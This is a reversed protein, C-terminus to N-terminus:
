DRTTQPDETTTRAAAATRVVAATQPTTGPAPGLDSGSPQDPVSEVCAANPGPRCPSGPDTVPQGLERRAADLATVDRVTVTGALVLGFFRATADTATRVAPVTRSGGDTLRVRVAPGPSVGAIWTVSRGRDTVPVAAWTVRAGATWADFCATDPAVVADDVQLCRRAGPSLTTSGITWAVGHVTGAAVRYVPPEPTPAAPHGSPAPIPPASQGPNAAPLGGGTAAPLLLAPAVLALVAALGTGGVTFLTRRRIRRRRVRAAIRPVPDVPGTYDPILDRLAGRLEEDPETV